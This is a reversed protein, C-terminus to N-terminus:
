DILEKGSNNRKVSNIYRTVDNKDTLVKASNVLKGEKDKVVFTSTNKHLDMGIFLKDANITQIMTEQM